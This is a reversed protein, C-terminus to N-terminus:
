PWDSPWTFTRNNFVWTVCAVDAQIVERQDYASNKFQIATAEPADYSESKVTKRPNYNAKHFHGGTDTLFFVGTYVENIVVKQTRCGSKEIEPLKIYTYKQYLTYTLSSEAFNQPSVYIPKETTAAEWAAKCSLGAQFLQVVTGVVPIEGILAGASEELTVFSVAKIGDWLASTGKGEQIKEVGTSMDTFYVEYHTFTEGGYRTSSHFVENLSARSTQENLMPVFVTVTQGTIGNAEAYAAISAIDDLAEQPLGLRKMTQYTSYDEVSGQVPQVELYDGSAAEAFYRGDNTSFMTDYKDDQSVTVASGSFLRSRTVAEFHGDETPYLRLITKGGPRFNCLSFRM